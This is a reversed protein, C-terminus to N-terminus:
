FLIEFSTITQSSFNFISYIYFQKGKCHECTTLYISHKFLFPKNTEIFDDLQFCTHEDNFSKSIILECKTCQNWLNSTKQSLKPNKASIKSNTKSM